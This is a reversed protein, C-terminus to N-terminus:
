TPQVEVSLRGYIAVNATAYAAKASVCESLGFAAKAGEADTYGDLSQMGGYRYIEQYNIGGSALGM